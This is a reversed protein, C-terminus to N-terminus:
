QSEGGIVPVAELALDAIVLLRHDAIGIPTCTILTLRYDATQDMYEVATPLVVLKERVYYRYVRSKTYVFIEDGKKMKDLDRFVSGRIDRHGAMVLNGYQGPLSSGEQYGAAFDAVQWSNKQMHVTVVKSDINLRPIVIRSPSAETFTQSALATTTPQVFEAPLTPLNADDVPLLVPRNAPNPANGALATALVTPTLPPSATPRLAAVTTTLPTTATLPLGAIPATTPRTTAVLLPSSPQLSPSVAAQQETAVAASATGSEADSFSSYAWWGLVSLIALACVVEMSVLLRDVLTQRRKRRAPNIVKPPTPDALAARQQFRSSVETPLERLEPLRATVRATPPATPQSTPSAFRASRALGRDHVLPREVKAQEVSQNSINHLWRVNTMLQSAEKLDSLERPTFTRAAERALLAKRQEPPLQDLLAKVQELTPRSGENTQPNNELPLERATIRRRPHFMACV